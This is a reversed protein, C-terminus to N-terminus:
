LAPYIVVFATICTTPKVYDAKSQGLNDFVKIREIVKMLLLGFVDILSLILSLFVQVWKIVAKVQMSKSSARIHKYDQTPCSGPCRMETIKLAM